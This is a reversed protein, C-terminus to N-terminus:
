NVRAWIETQCLLGALACGELQMRGSGLMQFSGSYSNGDLPNYLTGGWAGPGKSQLDAVM